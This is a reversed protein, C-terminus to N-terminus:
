TELLDELMRERFLETEAGSFVGAQRVHTLNLRGERISMIAGSGPSAPVSPSHFGNTVRTGLFTELGAAFEGTYAFFFSCLEGHLGRRAMYAYARMPAWRAFDMAVTGAEVLKGKIAALRQRKLEEILRDLDRAQEPFVQFWLLSVHTRFIAGESGKPRVNVPLPVVYSGPVVGRAEFVAHHARVAAALYFLMPTLFGARATARKAVEATQERDLTVVDYRLHQPVSRVPGALSRPPREAFGQMHKQWTTAMQGRASLTPRDGEHPGRADGEIPGYRALESAEIEGRFCADLAEVFRESGAGDFLMHLWTMALDTGERGDGYRVVDFRLLDGSRIAFTDNLRKFFVDPVPGSPQPGDVDHVLIRPAPCSFARSILYLPAGMGFRRGVPAHTIPIASALNEVVGRLANVNFGPGLRLVLQSLHSAHNRRRVEANFARLFCDAGTLPIPEARRSRSM